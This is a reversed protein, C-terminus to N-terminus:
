NLGILRLYQELSQTAWPSIHFALLLAIGDLIEAM